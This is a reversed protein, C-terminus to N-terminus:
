LKDLALGVTIAGIARDKEMIPLSVQISYVQSSDDFQAKDIFDAGKGGLFSKQWKDEDGQWYDSTKFITCVLGGQDDMVFAEVMATIDKVDQKLADTCKNELYPKMFETVGPSAIWQKDLKQIADMTIKKANQEKVSKIIVPDTTIKRLAPLKAEVKV